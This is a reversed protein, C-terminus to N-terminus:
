RGKVSLKSDNWGVISGSHNALSQGHRFFYLHTGPLALQTALLDSLRKFHAMNINNFSNMLLSTFSDFTKQIGLSRGVQFEVMSSTKRKMSNTSMLLEKIKPSPRESSRSWALLTSLMPMMNPRDKEKYEWIRIESSNRLLLNQCDIVPVGKKGKM